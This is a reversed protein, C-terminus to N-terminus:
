HTKFELSVEAGLVADMTYNPNDEDMLLRGGLSARSPKEEVENPNFLDPLTNEAHKELPGTLTDFSPENLEPLSLDLNQQEVIPSETEDGLLPEDSPVNITSKFVKTAKALLRAFTGQDDPHPKNPHNADGHEPRNVLEKYSDLVKNTSILDILPYDQESPCFSFLAICLLLLVLKRM